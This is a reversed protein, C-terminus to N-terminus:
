CRSLVQWLAGTEFHLPHRFRREQHEFLILPVYLHTSLKKGDAFTRARSKAAYWRPTSSRVTRLTHIYVKVYRGYGCPCQCSWPNGPVQSLGLCGVNTHQSQFRM